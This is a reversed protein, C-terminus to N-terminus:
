VFRGGYSRRYHLTIGALTARWENVHPKSELGFLRPVIGVSFFASYGKGDGVTGREWIFRFLRFKRKRSEWTMVPKFFM